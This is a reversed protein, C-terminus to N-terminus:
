YGTGSHMGLWVFHDGLGLRHLRCVPITITSLDDDELTDRLPSRRMRIRIANPRAAAKVSTGARASGNGRVM